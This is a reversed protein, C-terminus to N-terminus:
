SIAVISSSSRIRRKSSVGSSSAAISAYLRSSSFTRLPLSRACFGKESNVSNLATSSSLCSLKDPSVYEWATYPMDHFPNTLRYFDGAQILAYKTKFFDVQKRVVDKEAPTCKRLDMEYGFTGCMAVVGRTEIPTCRGTHGNPVASVHAGIASVPYCFSTGYHIKLRDVADTNDSCWIQPAYHLMGADFRGGGGACGEIFLSPYDQRLRELFEYVGLVYRHFVEGQRDAPLAASWVDTLSRNMDWKVYAIDVSDLIRKIAAYIHERIEARSFDLVLQGRCRSRPREPAGLAWDPHARYLDSDESIMEPEIWLGFRMGLGHVRPVLTELGGPLKKENVYWDGLGSEDSDRRGFWGDDMVFLSVGLSAAESAIGALKDADFDFETAEWSNILVPRSEGRYPDRILCDRMARHFRHSMSAFGSASCVLATEPSTFSAGSTLAWRFHYPHIGMILRTNEFQSLEVDALFSGSYLLAIGWCLGHDEDTSHECLIVFPNHQHSSAGRVSDVVQRGPRLPARSLQREMAHTGDFTVLDLDARNFDLCVSMAKLLYITDAGRNVIRVARTILDHEECVGYLLEVEIEAYPDRLFVSLTEWGEGFFAPLGDLTYKGPRIDHGAYRLDLLLSGDPQEAEASCLRFDGVGCTSYEQPLRDLSYDRRRGAEWPNPCWGHDQYQILYSMDEQRIRPGYYTHLLVNYRDIKIQYTTNETHLTLTRDQENYLIM